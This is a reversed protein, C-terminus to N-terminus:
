VVTHVTFDFPSLLMNSVTCMNENVAFNSNLSYNSTIVYIKSPFMNSLYIALERIIHMDEMCMLWNFKNSDSLQNFSKNNIKSFLTNRLNAYKPCIVLVHPENEVLNLNCQKCIRSSVPTKPTTYRGQEIELRHASIRFQSLIKRHEFNSLLLYKEPKFNNKFTVHLLPKANM